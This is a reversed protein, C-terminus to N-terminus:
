IFILSYGLVLAVVVLSVIIVGLKKIGEKKKFLYAMGLGANVALGALLSSFPLGGSIYFSTLLVSSACNPIFGILISVLPSLYKNTSLFEIVNDEGIYYMLLGFLFNFVLVYGFIKISHILPHILHEHLESEEEDDIHHGCCGIHVDSDVIKNLKQKRYILDLIFGAIFGVVFKIGILVFGMYWKSSAFLIPLSEDSCSIFVAVLTGISISEKLYLDSAVVSIGCQPIIGIASGVLPGLRSNIVLKKSLSKEVFSLIVFLIFALALVKLSDILADILVDLM